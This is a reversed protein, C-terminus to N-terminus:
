LRIKERGTRKSLPRIAGDTLREVQCAIMPVVALGRKIKWLTPVSCGVMKAFKKSTMGQSQLWIELPSNKISDDM